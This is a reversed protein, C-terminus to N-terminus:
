NKFISDDQAQSIKKFNMKLKNRIDVLCNERDEMEFYKIMSEQKLFKWCDVLNKM